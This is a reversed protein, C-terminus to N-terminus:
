TKQKSFNKIPYGFISPFKFEKKRTIPIRLFFLGLIILALGLYQYISEFYQGLFIMAGVSEIIASIGDWAGNVLLITSGQLSKILYYVVGIYGSTGIIFPITGGNNAFYQYGFDGVIECLTLTGIEVLSM